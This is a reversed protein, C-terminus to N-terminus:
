KMSKKQFSFDSLSDSFDSDLVVRLAKEISADKHLALYRTILITYIDGIDLISPRSDDYQCDGIDIPCRKFFINAAHEFTLCHNIHAFKLQRSIEQDSLEHVIDSVYNNTERAVYELFTCVYCIDDQIKENLIM